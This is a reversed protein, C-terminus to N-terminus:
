SIPNGHLPSKSAVSNLMHCYSMIREPLEYMCICDYMVLCFFFFLICDYMSEYPLGNAKVREQSSLGNSCGPGLWAKVFKAIRNAKSSAEHGM